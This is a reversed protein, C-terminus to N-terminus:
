TLLKKMKIVKAALRKLNKPWIGGKLTVWIIRSILRIKGFGEEGEEGGSTPCITGPTVIRPSSEGARVQLSKCAGMHLVSGKGTIALPQMQFM